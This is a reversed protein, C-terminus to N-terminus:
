GESANIYANVLERGIEATSCHKKVAGRGNAGMRARAEPNRLLTELADTFSDQTSDAVLGADCQIVLPALGCTDTVVVPLGLAMAELVSMPFPEDVSPLAYISASRMRDITRDPPLPGSWQVPAHHQGESIMRRVAEGEGEDPGVLTFRTQPWMTTLKLAARVFHVPRKREHIRALFLVEPRAVPGQQQEVAPVDPVPVANPLQQLNLSPGAVETLDKKEQETLHLVAKSARLVPRTLFADLPKALRKETQDVMGHTQVLLAKQFLLTNLAAPLTILDRALHIHVVDVRKLISPLWAALRPSVLGAFGTGPILQRAPFLRVPFGDFSTPLPGDFGGAAAALVVEHGLDTLAKAQNVAVRVPGGYAGDPSIYAVM